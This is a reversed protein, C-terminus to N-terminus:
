KDEYNLEKLFYEAYEKCQKEDPHRDIRGGVWNGMVESFSYEIINKFDLSNILPKLDTSKTFDQEDDKVDLFYGYEKYTKNYLKIFENHAYCYVYKKNYLKFMNQLSVMYVLNNIFSSQETVFNELVYKNIDNRIKDDKKQHPCPIINVWRETLDYDLIHEFRRDVGRSWMIIYLDCNNHSVIHNMARLYILKNSSSVQSDDFFEQNLSDAVLYPFSREKELGKGYMFSDGGFYIM